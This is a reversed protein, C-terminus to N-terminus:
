KKKNLFIEVAVYYILRLVALSNLIPLLLSLGFFFTLLGYILSTKGIKEVADAMSFLYAPVIFTPIFLYGNSFSQLSTITVLFTWLLLWSFATARIIQPLRSGNTTHSRVTGKFGLLILIGSFILFGAEFNLLSFDSPPSSILYYIGFFSYVIATYFFSFRKFFKLVLVDKKM